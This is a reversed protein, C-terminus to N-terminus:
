VSIPGLFEINISIMLVNFKCVEFEFLYIQGFIVPIADKKRKKFKIQRKLILNFNILVLVDQQNKETESLNILIVVNSIRKKLLSAGVVYIYFFKVCIIFIISELQM